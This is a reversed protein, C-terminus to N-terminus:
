KTLPFQVSKPAYKSDWVFVEATYTKETDAVFNEITITTTDELPKMSLAALKGGEYIAFLAMDGSEAAIAGNTNLVAIMNGSEVATVANEDAVTTKYLMASAEAKEATIFPLYMISNATDSNRSIRLTHKGATLNVPNFKVISGHNAFSTGSVYNGTSVENGDISLKLTEGVPVSNPSYVGIGADFYYKGAKPANVSFEVYNLKDFLASTYMKNWVTVFTNTEPQGIVSYDVYNSNLFSNVSGTVDGNNVSNTDQYQSVTTNYYGPILVKGNIDIDTCVIDIYDTWLTAEPTLSMLYLTDKELNFYSKGDGLKGYSRGRLDLSEYTVSEGDEPKITCSIKGGKDYLDAGKNNNIYIAYKGTRPVTFGFDKTTNAPIECVSSLEIRTHYADAEKEATNVVPTFSIYDLADCYGYKGNDAPNQGPRVNFVFQMTYKGKEPITIKRVVGTNLKNIAYWYNVTNVYEVKEANYSSPNVDWSRAIERITELDSNEPILHIDYSSFSNDGSGSFDVNYVGPKNFTVPITVTKEGGTTLQKDFKLAKGGSLKNEEQVSPNMGKLTSSTVEAGFEKFASAFDEFEVTTKETGSIEAFEPTFKFYDLDTWLVDRSGGLKEFTIKLTYNGPELYIKKGSYRKFDGSITVGNVWSNYVRTESGDAYVLDVVSNSAGGGSLVAMEFECNIAKEISLPINLYLPYSTWPEKWLHIAKGGSYIDGTKMGTDSPVVSKGDIVFLDKYDEFEIVTSESDSVTITNMTITPHETAASDDAFATMGLMSSVICMVMAFSLLRKKVNTEKKLM